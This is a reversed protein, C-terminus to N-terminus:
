KMLSNLVEVAAKIEDSGVEISSSAACSAVIVKAREEINSSNVKGQLFENQAQETVCKNMKMKGTDVVSDLSFAQVNTVILMAIAVLFTIRKM